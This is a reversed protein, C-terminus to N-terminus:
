FHKNLVKGHYKGIQPDRIFVNKQKMGSWM